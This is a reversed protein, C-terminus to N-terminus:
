SLTVELSQAGHHRHGGGHSKHEPVPNLEPQAIAFRQGLADRDADRDADSQPNPQTVPERIPQGVSEAVSEGNALRDPHRPTRLAYEAGPGL